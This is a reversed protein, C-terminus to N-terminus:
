DDGICLRLRALGRRIWSKMTGLPVSQRDALEAYTVGGFFAARIMARQKDELQDMCAFIRANEQIAEIDQQANPRDDAILPLADDSGGPARALSRRYDIATNRAIVALWTIPSARAPDFRGARHWVKLYVEQLVDEAADRNGLVTLCVGMLKASTAQYVRQLAAREGRGVLALDEALRARAADASQM